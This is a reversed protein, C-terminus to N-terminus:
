SEPLVKLTYSGYVWCKDAGSIAVSAPMKRQGSTGDYKSMDAMITFNNETLSKIQERPGIVIFELTESLVQAKVGEANIVGFSGNNEVTFRKASYDEINFTVTVESIGSMEEIGTSLNLPFSMTRGGIYISSLDIGEVSYTGNAALKDIADVEGELTISSPQASYTLSSLDFNEPANRIPVNIALTVQKHVPVTVTVRDPSPEGAMTTGEESGTDNYDIITVWKTEDASIEDGESNHYSITGTFKETASLESDVIASVQISAIKEVVSEPGQVTVSKISSYCDGIILDDSSTSVGAANVKETPIRKQQIRDFWVRIFNNGDKIKVTVDHGSCSVSLQLLHEGATTVSNVQATVTIDEAAVRSIEYISGSVEVDVKADKMAEPSTIAILQLEQFQEIDATDIIIPVGTVVTKSDDSVYLTMLVWCGIAIIVAIVALARNTYLWEFSIRKKEAEASVKKISM